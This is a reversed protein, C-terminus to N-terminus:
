QKDDNFIDTKEESAKEYIAVVWMIGLLTSMIGWLWEPAQFYYLCLIYLLTSPIPLRSPLNKRSIVKKDKMM